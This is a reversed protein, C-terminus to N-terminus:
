IFCFIDGVEDFFVLIDFVCIDYKLVYEIKMM